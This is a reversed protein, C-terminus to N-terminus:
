MLFDNRCWLITKVLPSNTHKSVYCWLPHWAEFEYYGHMNRTDTEAFYWLWKVVSCHKISFSIERSLLKLHTESGGELSVSLIHCLERAVAWKSQRSHWVHRYQRYSPTWWVHRLCRYLVGNVNSLFVIITVVDWPYIYVRFNWEYMNIDAM